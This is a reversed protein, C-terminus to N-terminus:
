NTELIRYYRQPNAGLTDTISATSGTIIPATPLDIWNTDNLSNKYQVHPTKGTAVNWQFSFNNSGLSIALNTIRPPVAKIEIKFPQPASTDTGGNATGGDDKLTVTVNAVGNASSEPTYTLTGGQSIAPQVAILGTNDSTLVFTLTQGAEDVPGASISTAWGQVTQPGADNTVTQDAGKIFSPPDNVANVTIGFTQTASTDVGGNSTGGDDKLTVSVTAAGHANAAPTYRLTGDPSIIPQAAFLVNNDNIVQFALTQGSENAPGASIATAWGTVTQPGSDENITQDVGKAFSPADNVANVMITFTQAPSTDAGGNATGGDDKLTVSVTAAGHANAASTYRLTGDPSIIPQAAFLVNNDNIVQFALTQGSENAPGASLATAWGNVVQLGVDENVAQGSGKTFSPRDNVANVTITFSQPASTDVGGNSTGGDDKAIVTVRAIGNANTASTFTLTGIPSIAPQASFLANSDNSVVFNVVMGADGPPGPSINTAWNAATRPGADEGAIQDPGKIFIPPRNVETVTVAFTKTDSLPPTGDDTARVTISYVAPGQLETPTWTFVGSVPDISAGLPFGPDLSFSLKQPVLDPDSAAATFSFLTEENVTKDGIVGLSPPTNVASLILSTTNLAPQLRRGGGFGLGNYAAFSGIRSGYSLIEFTDTVNPVFGSIFTMNVAGDLTASGTVVLRDYETGGTRGGIEIAM